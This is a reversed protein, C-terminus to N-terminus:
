EQCLMQLSPLRRQEGSNNRLEPCAGADSEHETKQYGRARQDRHFVRCSWVRMLMKRLQAGDLLHGLGGSGSVTM